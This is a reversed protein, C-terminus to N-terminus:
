CKVTKCKVGAKKFVRHYKLAAEQELEKTLEVNEGTFYREAQEIPIEYIDALNKKVDELLRGPIIGQMILKYKSEILM